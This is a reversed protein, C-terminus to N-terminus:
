TSQNSMKREVRVINHWMTAADENGTCACVMTLTYACVYRRGVDEALPRTSQRRTTRRAHCSWHHQTTAPQRIHRRRQIGARRVSSAISEAGFKCEVFGMRVMIAKAPLHFQMSTHTDCAGNMLRYV